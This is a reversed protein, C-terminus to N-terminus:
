REKEGTNPYKSAYMKRYQNPSIGRRMRFANIFSASSSYGLFDAIEAISLTTTRLMLKAYNIKAISVYERPSYGTEKKFLRMFYHRSLGVHDALEQVSYTEQINQDIYEIVQYSIMDPSLKVRSPIFLNSDAGTKPIMCLTSYVISSLYADSAREQYCLKTIPENINSYVEQANSLRFRASGNDAILADILDPVYKGDFHFFLFECNQECFYHHPKYGNVLVIEDKGATFHEGEYDFTLEGDIIFFFVPHRNGPKKVSYEHNCLFYGCSVMYLYYHRFFESTNFYSMYSGKLVGTEKWIM